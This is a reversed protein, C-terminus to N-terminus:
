TQDRIDSDGCRRRRGAAVEAPAVLEVARIDSAVPEFDPHRPIGPDVKRATGAPERDMRQGCREVGQAIRGKQRPPWCCMFKSALVASSSGKLPATAAPM